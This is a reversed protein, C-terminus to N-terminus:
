ADVIDTIPLGFTQSMIYRLGERYKWQIEDMEDMGTPMSTGLANKVAQVQAFTYTRSGSNVTIQNGGGDIIYYEYGVIVAQMIDFMMNISTTKGYIVGSEIINIKGPKNYSVAVNTKLLM